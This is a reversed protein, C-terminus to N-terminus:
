EKILIEIIKAYAPRTIFVGITAGMITMLAFGKLLGAGAWILPLMAAFLVMYAGIIIFFANQMKEKWTYVRRTEGQIVEDTIIIQQDVGTGVVAIIGAIAALDIDRKLLASLGLLIVIESLVTLMVPIAIKFNRYVLALVLMVVVIAIGTVLFANKTFQEGLVPSITETQIIRLKVPLSGTILIAQLRRMNKLSNLAADQQTLGGGSGSIQIDTVARGKLDIGINLTDMLQDDLYLDLTENLYGESDEGKVVSLDKTANAQREAAAQSLTISFRFRCFWESGSQVCGVSPDIGSCDASRCVYTIDQGGKFLVNNLIKAEFKGQKALLEKVEEENVGAVEVLIYNNGSLDNAARIIVDSLGFINLRQRMNDILMDTDRASIEEEPQLLVRTGGQLDLGKRINTTPAEYVSIGLSLVGDITKTHLNYLGKNTKITVSQNEKLTKIFLYYDALDKLPKNNIATIREKSMLTSQPSPSTMGAQAASSNREINRIAVGEAWLNPSIAFVAMVLCALLILVRVNTIIKKLKGM